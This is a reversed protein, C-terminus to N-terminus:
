IPYSAHMNTSTFIIFEGAKMEYTEEQYGEFLGSLQNLAEDFAGFIRVPKKPIFFCKVMREIEKESKGLCFYPLNSEYWNTFHEFRCDEFSGPLFRMCANEITVDTLAVWVSLQVMGYDTSITPQLKPIMSAETFTGTQHWFTGHQGPQAEFFQSRWCLIDDGLLCALKKAIRPSALTDWLLEDHMAQYNGALGIKWGGAEKLNEVQKNNFLTNGNFDNDFLHYSHDKLLKAEERSCLKFPGLVGKSEFQNVQQTTLADSNSDCNHRGRANLKLGKFESFINGDGNKPSYWMGNTKNYFSEFDKVASVLNNIKAQQGNDFTYNDILARYSDFGKLM